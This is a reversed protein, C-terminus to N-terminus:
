LQLVTAISISVAVAWGHETNRNRTQHYLGASFHPPVVACTILSIRWDFIEAQSGGCSGHCDSTLKRTLRSGQIRIVHFVIVSVKTFCWCPVSTRKQKRRTSGGIWSQKWKRWMHTPLYCTRIRSPRHLVPLMLTRLRIGELGSGM